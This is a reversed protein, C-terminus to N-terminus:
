ATLLLLVGRPRLDELEGEARGDKSLRISDGVGEFEVERLLFPRPFSCSRSQSFSHLLRPFPPPFTDLQPFSRSLSVSPDVM